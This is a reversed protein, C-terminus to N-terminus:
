VEEINHSNLERVKVLRHHHVLIPRRLILTTPPLINKYTIGFCSHGIWEIEVEGKNHIRLTKDKKSVLILFGQAKIEDVRKQVREMWNKEAELIQDMRQRRIEAAKDDEIQRAKAIKLWEDMGRDYM